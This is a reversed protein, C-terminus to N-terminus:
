KETIRTTSQADHRKIEEANKPDNLYSRLLAELVEVSSIKCLATSLMDANPKTIEVGLKELETRNFDTCYPEDTTIKNDDLVRMYGYAYDTGTEKDIERRSYAYTNESLKKFYLKLKSYNPKTDGTSLPSVIYSNDDALDVAASGPPDNMTLISHLPFPRDSNAATILPAKSALCGSLLLSFIVSAPFSTFSRTRM